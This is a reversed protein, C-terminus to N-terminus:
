ISYTFMLPPVLGLAASLPGEPDKLKEIIKKTMLISDRREADGRKLMRILVIRLQNRSSYTSSIALTKLLEESYGQVKSLGQRKADATLIDRLRELALIPALLDSNEEEEKNSMPNSERENSSDVMEEVQEVDEEDELKEEEEEIEDEEEEEEGSDLALHEVVTQNVTSNSILDVITLNVTSSPNLDSIPTSNSNLDPIPTTVNIQGDLEDILQGPAAEPPGSYSSTPCEDSAPHGDSTPRCTAPLPTTILETTTSTASRIDNLRETQVHLMQVAPPLYSDTYKPKNSPWVSCCVQYSLLLIFLSELLLSKM